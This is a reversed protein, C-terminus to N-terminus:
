LGAGRPNSALRNKNKGSVFRIVNGKQIFGKTTKRHSVSYLCRKLHGLFGKRCLKLRERWDGSREPSLNERRAEISQREGVGSDRCKSNEGSPVNKDDAGWEGIWSKPGLSGWKGKMDCCLCHKRPKADM